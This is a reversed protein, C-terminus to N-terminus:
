GEWCRQYAVVMGNIKGDGTVYYRQCGFLFQSKKKEKKKKPM